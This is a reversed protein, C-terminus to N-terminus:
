SPYPLLKGLANTLPFLKDKSVLVSTALGKGVVIYPLKKLQQHTKPTIYPSEKHWVRLPVCHELHPYLAQAFCAVQWEQLDVGLAKEFDKICPYHKGLHQRLVKTIETPFQKKIKEIAVDTVLHLLFDFREPKLRKSAGVWAKGRKGQKRKRTDHLSKEFNLEQIAALNLEQERYYKEYDSEEYHYDFDDYDLSGTFYEREQLFNVQEESLEGEEYLYRILDEIVKM